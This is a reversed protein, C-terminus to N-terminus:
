HIDMVYFYISLFHCISGSLVFIHFIFHNFKIKKIGYIIAGLTYAIGGAFLLVVGEISLNEKLPNIALIIIWGMVIYMITSLVDYKGTFFLKLIIGTLACIWIVAFILWGTIGTLTILSYPTYTGAILVYIAAHDFIQLKQRRKGAEASHYLTSATYLLILSLGFVGSGIIYVASEFHLSRIMLLIFALLSLVLGTAHSIVNLAEERQGYATIKKKM